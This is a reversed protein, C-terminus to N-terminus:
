DLMEKRPPALWLSTEYLCSGSLTNRPAKRSPSDTGTHSAPVAGQRDRSRNEAPSQHGYAPACKKFVSRLGPEGCAGVAM